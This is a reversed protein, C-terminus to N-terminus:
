VLGGLGVIVTASMHYLLIFTSDNNLVISVKELLCAHQPKSRRRHQKSSTAAVGFKTRLPKFLKQCLM